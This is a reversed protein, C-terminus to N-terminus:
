VFRFHFFCGKIQALPSFARHISLEFDMKVKELKLTRSGYMAEIEEGRARFEALLLYLFVGYSTVTKDPLWGFAVPQYSGKYELLFIFLQYWQKSISYLFTQSLSTLCCQTM